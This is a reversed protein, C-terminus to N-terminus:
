GAAIDLIEDDLQELYSGLKSRLHEEVETATELSLVERALGELFGMSAGRIARKVLGISTPGMSLTRVGLGALLLALCPDSAMEGCVSVPIGRREGAEVVMRILRLVAPHAPRYLPAVAKNVRDVALTYQVLDNTGISLFDSERALADALLAASPLEVMAGLHISAPCAGGEDRRRDAMDHLMRRVARMDELGGVMPIMVRLDRGAAAALMARLQTRILEPRELCLRIARLGLFPNAEHVRYEEAPLKDGGVDLTRLVVPRDGMREFAATFGARQEEESPLGARDLFLFESRYLGIGEAGHAEVSDLEQPFEINALMAVRVGDTTAAPLHRLEGLAIRLNDYEQAKRRYTQLLEPSPNLILKGEAGDLVLMDGTRIYHTVFELGVVAPLSLAKAMIATHSTPGGSNTCFGLVSEQALSATEAPGLDNAVVICGERPMAPATEASIRALFKLVRRAVDYLDHNREAFYDDGLMKMKEGLSGTVAWFISEANQQDKRIGDITRDVLYPDELMLIHADFIAAQQVDIQQEVRARIDALEEKALALARRFREVDAEVEADSALRYKETSVGSAELVYAPGIAIGRSVGLGEFFFTRRSPM